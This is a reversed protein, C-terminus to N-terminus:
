PAPKLHQDLFAEVQRWFDVRNKGNRWGHSENDYYIATVNSNNATVGNGFRRGHELPTDPPVPAVVGARCRRQEM